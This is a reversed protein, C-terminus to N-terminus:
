GRTWSMNSPQGDMKRANYSDKWRQEVSHFWNKIVQPHVHRLDQGPEVPIGKLKIKYPTTSPPPPPNPNLATKPASQVIENSGTPHSPTLQSLAAAVANKVAADILAQTQPDISPHVSSAPALKASNQGNKEPNM